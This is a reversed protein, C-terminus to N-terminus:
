EISIVAKGHAKGELMDVFAEGNDIGKTIHEKVKVEGSKILKPFERDFESTDHNSVIFGEWRLSKVVVYMTNKMGYQQDRPVNYQSVSGCAIIRGKNQITALVADLTEGGVNDFYLNPPHQELIEQTSQTKYNFVVDAGLSKVFEVKEDSGASGIVKLGESKALQVVIQGVAGSAASVFITEGKKAQGITHLGVWATQGPMGAAGVLTTFPLGETNALVKNPGGIKKKPVHVYESYALFGRFTDGVKISDHESRVVTGVAYGELPKGVEYAPTYSQIKPDRMKGRMYPDLSLAAVKVLIGGDLQVKDPDFADDTRKQLTKGPVPAGTPPEAYILSTNGM